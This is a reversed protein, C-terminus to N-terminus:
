AQNRKRRLKATANRYSGNDLGTIKRRMATSITNRYVSYLCFACEEKTAFRGTFFGKLADVAGAEIMGTESLAPFQYSCQKKCNLYCEPAGQVITKPTRNIEEITKWCERANKTTRDDFNRNEVAQQWPNPFGTKPIHNEGETRWKLPEKWKECLLDKLRKPTEFITGKNWVEFDPFYGLLVEKGAFLYEESSLKFLSCGKFLGEGCLFDDFLTRGEEKAPFNFAAKLQCLNEIQLIPLENEISHAFENLANRYRSVEFDIEVRNKDGIEPLTPNQSRDTILRLERSQVKQAIIPTYFNWPYLGDRFGADPWYDSATEKKCKEEM